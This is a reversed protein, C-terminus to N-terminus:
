PTGARGSPTTQSERDPPTTPKPSHGAPSGREMRRIAAVLDSTAKYTDASGILFIVILLGLPVRRGSITVGRQGRMRNFLMYSSWSVFMCGVVLGLSALILDRVMRDTDVSCNRKSKKNEAEMEGLMEERRGPFLTARRSLNLCVIRM